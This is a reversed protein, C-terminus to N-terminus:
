LKCYSIKFEVTNSNQKNITDIDLNFFHIAIRFRGVSIEPFINRDPNIAIRIMQYSINPDLNCQYFGGNAIVDKFINSNRILKLSIDAVNKVLLLLTIWNALQDRRTIADQELWLQYAPLNFGCTGAPIYLRQQIAKLFEKERLEQGIKKKNIHLENILEDIQKLTSNLKNVDVEPVKKLLLLMNQYQILNQLFKNKLDPRDLVQLIELIIRITQHDNLTSQFSHDLQAFLYELRLCLRAHENLPQEYIM